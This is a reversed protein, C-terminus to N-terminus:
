RRLVKGDSDLRPTIGGFFGGKVYQVGTRHDEYITLGSRNFRSKDSDDLPMFLQAVLAFIFSWFFIKLYNIRM